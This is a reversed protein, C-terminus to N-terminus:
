PGPYTLLFFVKGIVKKHLRTAGIFSNAEDGHMHATGPAICKEEALNFIFYVYLLYM